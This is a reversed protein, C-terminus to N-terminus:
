INEIILFSLRISNESNLRDFQLLIYLISDILHVYKIKESRPRYIKIKESFIIM